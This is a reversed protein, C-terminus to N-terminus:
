KQEKYIFPNGDKIFVQGPQAQPPFDAGSLVLNNDEIGLEEKSDVTSYITKVFAISKDTSVTPKTKKNVLDWVTNQRITNM